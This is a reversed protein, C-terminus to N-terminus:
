DFEVLKFNPSQKEYELAADSLAEILEVNYEKKQEVLARASVEDKAELYFVQTNERRPSIKKDPQYYVKFIM